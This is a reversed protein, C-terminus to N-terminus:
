PEIIRGHTPGKDYRHGEIHCAFEIATGTDDLNM